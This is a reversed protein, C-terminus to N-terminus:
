WCVNLDRGGHLRHQRRTNVPQRRLLFLKQLGGGDDAGLNGQREELGHGLGRLFREAQAEGM